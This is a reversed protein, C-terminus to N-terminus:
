RGKPKLAEKAVRINLELEKISSKDSNAILYGKYSELENIRELLPATVSDAFDNMLDMISITDQVHVTRAFNATGYVKEIYENATPIKEKTM